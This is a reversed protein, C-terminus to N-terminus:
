HFASGSSHKQEVVVRLNAVIVNVFHGIKFPVGQQLM